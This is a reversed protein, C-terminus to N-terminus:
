HIVTWQTWLGRSLWVQSCQFMETFLLLPLLLCPPLSFHLKGKYYSPFHRWKPNFDVSSQGPYRGSLPCLHGPVLCVLKNFNPFLVSSRRSHFNRKGSLDILWGSHNESRLCLLMKVDCHCLTKPNHKRGGMTRHVLGSWLGILHLRFLSHMLDAWLNATLRWQEVCLWLRTKPMNKPFTGVIQKAKDVERKGATREKETYLKTANQNWKHQYKWKM